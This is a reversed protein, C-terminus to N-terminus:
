LANPGAATVRQDDRMGRSLGPRTAAAVPSMLGRRVAAVLKPETQEVYRKAILM